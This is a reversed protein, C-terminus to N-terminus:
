IGEAPKESENVSLISSPTLYLKSPAATPLIKRWTPKTTGSRKRTIPRIMWYIIWKKRAKATAAPDCGATLSTVLRCDPEDGAPETCGSRNQKKWIVKM